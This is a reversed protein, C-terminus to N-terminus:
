SRKKRSRQGSLARCRRGSRRRLYYTALLGGSRRRRALSSKESSAKKSAAKKPKSPASPRAKPPIAVRPSPLEKARRNWEDKTAQPADRWRSALEKLLEKQPETAWQTGQMKQREASTFLIYGSPKRKKKPSKSDKKGGFRSRFGPRWLRM